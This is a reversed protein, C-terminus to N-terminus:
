FAGLAKALAAVATLVGLVGTVQSVRLQTVVADQEKDRTEREKKEEKLAKELAAIKDDQGNDRNDILEFRGALNAKGEPAIEKEVRGIRGVLSDKLSKVLNLNEHLLPRLDENEPM